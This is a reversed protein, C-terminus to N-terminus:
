FPGDPLQSPLRRLGRGRRDRAPAPLLVLRSRKQAVPRPRASQTPAIAAQVAPGDGMDAAHAHTAVGTEDAIKRAAEQVGDLNRAVLHVAAGQQALRLAIAYGLGRSAGTVLATQGKLDLM